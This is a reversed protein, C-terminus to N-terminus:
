LPTTADALHFGEAAGDGAASRPHRADPPALRGATGQGSGHLPIASIAQVLHAGQEFPRFVLDPVVDALLPQRIVGQMVAAKRANTARGARTRYLRALVLARPAPPPLAAIRTPAAQM